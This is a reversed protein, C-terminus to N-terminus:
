PNTLQKYIVFALLLARSTWLLTRIWNSGVLFHYTRADFGTGCLKAHCPISFCATCIWIALVLGFGIWLLSGDSRKWVVALLFATIIEVIMPAAVVMTTLQRHREAYTQFQEVGVGDFLPYHVIQVFWILGTMFWTSVTNIILLIIELNM